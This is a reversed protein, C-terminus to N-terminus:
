GFIPFVKCGAKVTNAREAIVGGFTFRNFSIRLVRLVDDRAPVSVLYGLIQQHATLLNSV